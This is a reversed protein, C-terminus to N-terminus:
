RWRRRDDDYRERRIYRELPVLEENIRDRETHSLYGDRQMHAVRTLLDDLQRQLSQVEHESLVGKRFSFDADSRAREIRTRVDVQWGGDAAPYAVPPYQERVQVPQCAATVGVLLGGALLLKLARAAM